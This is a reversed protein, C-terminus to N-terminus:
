KQEDSLDERRLIHGEQLDYRATKNLIDPINRAMIGTGPRKMIIHDMQLLDGGAIAKRLVVSKRSVSSMQREEEQCRKISSGLTLEARRVSQVLMAFEDPTVSARHDPGPLRKDLTFHKEIIKAGLAVAVVAAQCGESHDSFGTVSMFTSQLMPIVRLNLSEDSCPYNSVCHLLAFQLNGAARYISTVEEIEGLTAMGAAIIVPKGTKAIFSNLPLDVIDASAVKYLEVGADNLFEASELDYPTSIFDIGISKCHEMLPFHDERRLELKKIMEYHSEDTPTTQEQYLVKPTSRTVLADATFTQFKVADAGAEKAANIMKIALGVDGGHNVGIEAILYAPSNLQRLYDFNFNM